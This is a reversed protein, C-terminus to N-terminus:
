VRAFQQVCVFAWAFLFLKEQALLLIQYSCNRIVIVTTILIPIRAFQQVCVFAWAFLFLKEQALLLIHYSYNRISNSNSRCGLETVIPFIHGEFRLAKSALATASSSSETAIRDTYQNSNRGGGGGM